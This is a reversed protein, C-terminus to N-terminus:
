KVLYVFSTLFPLNCPFLNGLMVGEQTSLLFYNNLTVTIHKGIDTLPLAIPAASVTKGPCHTTLNDHINTTRNGLLFTGVLQSVNGLTHIPTDRTAQIAKSSNYM